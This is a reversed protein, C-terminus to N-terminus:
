LVCSSKCHWAQFKWEKTGTSPSIIVPFLHLLSLTGLRSTHKQAHARIKRGSHTHTQTHTVLALGSLPSLSPSHSRLPPFLFCISTHQCLFSIDVWDCVCVCVCACLMQETWLLLLVHFLELITEIISFYEVSWHCLPGWPWLLHIAVFYLINLHTCTNTHTQPTLTM